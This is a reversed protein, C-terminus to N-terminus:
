NMQIQKEIETFIDWVEKKTKKRYSLLKNRISDYNKNIFNIKKEINKYNELKLYLQPLGIDKCFNTNKQEYSLSVFPIGSQCAFIIGHYRMSILYHSTRLPVMSFKSIKKQFYKWALDGGDVFNKDFYLAFPEIEEHRTKILTIFNDLDWKKGPYYKKFNPHKAEFDLFFYYKRSYLEANWWHWDLINLALKDNNTVTETIPFPYLFTIDPGVIVKPHNYLVKKSHNDRVYIFKSKKILLDVALRMDDYIKNSEVTIGVCGIPPTIKNLLDYRENFKRRILTGGGILVFDCSNIQEIQNEAPIWTEFPIITHKKFYKKICWFMREDGANNRGTWCIVAIKM